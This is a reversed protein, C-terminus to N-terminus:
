LRADYTKAAAGSSGPPTPPVTIEVTYSGLRLLRWIVLTVVTWSWSTASSDAASSGPFVTVPLAGLEPQPDQGNDLVAADIIGSTSLFRRQLTDPHGLQLRGPPPSCPASPTYALISLVPSPSSACPRPYVWLRGAPKDHVRVKRTRTPLRTVTM